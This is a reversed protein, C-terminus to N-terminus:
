PQGHHGNNNKAPVTALAIRQDAFQEAGFEPFKFRASGGLASPRLPKCSNACLSLLASPEDALQHTVFMCALRRHESSCWRHEFCEAWPQAPLGVKPKIVM